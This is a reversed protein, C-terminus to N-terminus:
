LKQRKTLKKNHKRIKDNIRETVVKYGDKWDKELQEAAKEKAKWRLLAREQDSFAPNNRFYRPLAVKYGKITVTGDLNEKIHKIMQPTLFGLGLRKSMLSFERQRDDKILEGTEEDLIEQDKKLNGKMIYKSVYAMTEECAKSRDILGHGWAKEVIQTLNYHLPLNYIIAHMHPRHTETGYEGCAYYKINKVGCAKRLRKMFDPYDKKVLTPLGNPSRYIKEYTFTWFGVSSCHKAEEM